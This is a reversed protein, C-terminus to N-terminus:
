NLIPSDSPILVMTQVLSGLGDTTAVTEITTANGFIEIMRKAANTMTEGTADPWVILFVRWTIIAETSDTLYKRNGTDGSDHIVVELGNVSKVQPLDAGPTVINISDIVTSNKVFTYSGVYDMFTSDGTLADYIVKPSTAFNQPM